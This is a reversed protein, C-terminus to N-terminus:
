NGKQASISGGQFVAQQEDGAQVKGFFGKLEPYRDVPLSVVNLQLTRETSLKGGTFRAFSQYAAYPLEASQIMPVAELTFGSPISINVHDSELASFQFYLPYRRQEHEFAEKRSTKFIYVPVVIRKGTISGYGPVQVDFRAQLPLDSAEWDKAERLTVSAGAPLWSKIEDELYKKRGADDTDLADLRRELAQTGGYVVMIEGKLTGETDLALDATKEISAQDPPFSPVKVFSSSSRDLKLGESSTRIWRLSGFPCFPTGPDLYVEKGNVLVMAVQGDLQSSDLVTKQFIRAARNGTKIPWAEFGAARALAIFLYTIDERDGYGHSLVDAANQNVRINEKKQEEANREREYSLNRIQQARSYLKRLQAEPDTVGSIAQAAAEKVEKRNGIYDEASESWKRGAGLWFKELSNVERGGYFFSVHYKYQQEPPMYAEAVFAPVDELQLEFSEGKNKPQVGKPLYYALSIGTGGEM